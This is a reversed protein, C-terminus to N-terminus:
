ATRELEERLADLALWQRGQGPEVVAWAAARLRSLDDEARDARVRLADVDEVAQRGHERWAEAEAVQGHVAKRVEDLLANDDLEHTLACAQAAHAALDQDPWSHVDVRDAFVMADADKHAENLAHRAIDPDGPWGDLVLLYKGDPLSMAQLRPPLNRLEDCTPKCWPGPYPEDVRALLSDTEARLRDKAAKRAAAREFAERGAPTLLTDDNNEWAALGGLDDSNTTM